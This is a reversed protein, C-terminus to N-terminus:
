PQGSYQSQLCVQSSTLFKCGLYNTSSEAARGLGNHDDGSYESNDRVVVVNRDNATTATLRQQQQRRLGRVRAQQYDLVAQQADLSSRAHSTFLQLVHQAHLM